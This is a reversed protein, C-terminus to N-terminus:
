EVKHTDYKTDYKGFYDALAARVEVRKGEMTHQYVRKLMDPTAHGMIEMAYKDPVGLALMISATYHRLDHFRCSLGIKKRVTCFQNTITDPVLGVIPDHTSALVREIVFKPVSVTRTGSYSKPAKIRWKGHDDLVMAKTISITCKEADIDSRNLASIESRRLGGFAGLLIALCLATGDTVEILKQVANEEPINIEVKVKQPLNIERLSLDPLYVALAATLLGYANRVTKASVTTADINVARQVKPATLERLKLPMLAKLYNKRMRRYERITSPSLVATRDDIYNEIALGVTMEKPKQTDKQTLEFQAALFHAEKASEATFSKYHQKGDGKDWQARSRYNGSPLRVAKTAM